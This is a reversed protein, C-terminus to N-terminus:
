DDEGRLTQAILDAYEKEYDIDHILDYATGLYDWVDRVYGRILCAAQVQGPITQNHKFTDDDYLSRVVAQYLDRQINRNSVNQRKLDTHHKLDSIVAPLYEKIKKRDFKAPSTDPMQDAELENRIMKLRDFAAKSSEECLKAFDPALAELANFAIARNKYKEDFYQIEVLSELALLMSEDTLIPISAEPVYKVGDIVVTTM